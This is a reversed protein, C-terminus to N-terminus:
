ASRFVYRKSEERNWATVLPHLTLFDLNQGLDEPPIVPRMVGKHVPFNRVLRDLESNATNLRVLLAFSKPYKPFFMERSGIAGISLQLVIILYKM